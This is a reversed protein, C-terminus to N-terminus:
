GNLSEAHGAGVGLDSARQAARWRAAAVSQTLGADAAHGRARENSRVTGQSAFASTYIMRTLCTIVLPGLEHRGDSEACCAARIMLSWSAPMAGTMALLGCACDRLAAYRCAPCTPKPLSHRRLVTTVNGDGDWGTVARRDPRASRM